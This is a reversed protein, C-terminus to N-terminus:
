KVLAKVANEGEVAVAVVGAPVTITAQNSPIRVKAVVQGLMNSVVVNKGAANLITVSGTGGIVAMKTVPTSVEENGVPNVVKRKVDFIAAEYMMLKEDSRTIVPVGNDSKMWGGSGPRIVRGTRTNRDETESEIVFSSSNREIYRFSFVWDKHTNDDLAIIAHLGITRGEKKVQDM